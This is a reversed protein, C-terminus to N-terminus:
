FAIATMQSGFNRPSKIIEIKEHQSEYFRPFFRLLIHIKLTQPPYHPRM